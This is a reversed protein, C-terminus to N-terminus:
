FIPVPPKKAAIQKERKSPQDHIEGLTFGPAESPERSAKPSFALLCTTLWYRIM